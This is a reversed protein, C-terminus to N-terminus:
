VSSSWSRLAEVADSPGDLQVRAVARRGFAFLLLETPEGEVDVSPRGARVTTRGHRGSALVVGVPARRLAFRGASACSRWLARDLEPLERATWAPQARRVDEHHVVLEALNVADDVAGLRAPHWFPPGARVTGVLTAWDQDALSRQVRETHASLRGVRLGAAADPRRERLVLHAALMRADWGTCLTPAEPGVALLTDCLSEREAPARSM